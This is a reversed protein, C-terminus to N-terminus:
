VQMFRSEAKMTNYLRELYISMGETRPMKDHKISSIDKFMDSNADVAKNMYILIKCVWAESTTWDKRILRRLIWSSKRCFEIEMFFNNLYRRQYHLVNEKDTKGDKLEKFDDSFRRYYEEPIRDVDCECDDYFFNIVSQFAHGFEFSSYIPMLNTYRQFKMIQIPISVTVILTILAILITVFDTMALDGLCM